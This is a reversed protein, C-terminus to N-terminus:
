LKLERVTDRAIQEISRRADDWSFERAREHSRAAYADILAPHRVLKALEGVLAAPSDLPVLLGTDGLVERVVAIDYSVCAHGSAMAETLALGFGEYFTPFVFVNTELLLQALQKRNVSGAYRIRPDAAALREVDTRQPGDGAIVFEAKIDPRRVFEELVPILGKRFHLRGVFLLRPKMKAPKREYLALHEAEVGHPVVIVRNDALNHLRVIDSKLAASPVITKAARRNCVMEPLAYHALGTLFRVRKLPPVRAAFLEIEAYVSTGELNIFPVRGLGFGISA